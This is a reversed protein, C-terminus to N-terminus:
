TAEHREEVFVWRRSAAIIDQRKTGQKGGFMQELQMM